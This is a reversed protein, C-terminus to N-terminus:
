RLDGAYRWVRRGAKALAEFSFGAAVLLAGAVALAVWRPVLDSVTYIQGAAAILLAVVGAFLPARLHLLAGALAVLVAAAIVAVSRTPPQKFVAESFALVASPLLAMGLAPGLVLMSDPLERGSRRADVLAVLGAALALAASTLTYAELLSVETNELRIWVTVTGFAAGVWALWSRPRDVVAVVFLAVAIVALYGEVDWPRIRVWTQSDLDSFEYRASVAAEIMPLGLTWLTAAGISVPAVLRRARVVPLLSAALVVAGLVALAAIPVHIPGLEGKVAAAAEFAPVHAAAVGALIRVGDTFPGAVPARGPARGPARDPTRDPAQDPTTVLLGGLVAASGAVLAWSLAWLGYRSSDGYGTLSLLLSTGGFGTGVVLLDRRLGGVPGGTSRAAVTLVAASAVALAGV